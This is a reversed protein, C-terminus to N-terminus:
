ATVPKAPPRGRRKPPHIAAVTAVAGESIDAGDDEGSAMSQKAVERVTHAILASNATVEDAHAKARAMDDALKKAKQWDNTPIIAAKFANEFSDITHCRYFFAKGHRREMRTRESAIDAVARFPDNEGDLPMPEATIAKEKDRNAHNEWRERYMREEYAVAQFKLCTTTMPVHMNIIRAFPM